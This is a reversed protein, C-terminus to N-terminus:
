STLIFFTEACESRLKKSRLESKKMRVESKKMRGNGGRRM